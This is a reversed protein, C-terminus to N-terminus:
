ARVISLPTSNPENGAHISPSGTTETIFPFPPAILDASTFNLTATQGGPRGHFKELTLQSSFANLLRPSHGKGCWVPRGRGAKIVAIAGSGSVRYPSSILLVAGQHAAARALRLWFAEVGRGGAVPPNGLDLIVLPFGAGLLMETSALAQKLHDPCVWLLRELIINAGAAAQPDLHHGLDVLAAAEGTTTAAALTTLVTSFRGSSRSGILEVMQGRPLGGALLLDLASLTTSLLRPSASDTASGRMLQHASQLKDQLHQPLTSRLHDLSLSPALSATM